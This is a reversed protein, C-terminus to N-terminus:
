AGAEAEDDSGGASGRGAPVAVVVLAPRLLREHLAYGKQFVRVVTNQEVDASEQRQIAEHLAPDFAGGLPDLEELGYRALVDKLQRLVLEVGKRLADDAAAPVELARELNDLVPLCDALLEANAHKRFEALDREQRKRYNDFDALKRLYLERFHEIEEQLRGLEAQVAGDDAVSGAEGDPGPRDGEASQADIRDDRDNKEM